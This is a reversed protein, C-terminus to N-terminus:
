LAGFSKSLVNHGAGPNGSTLCPTDLCALFENACEVVGSAGVDDFGIPKGGALTHQDCVVAVSRNLM